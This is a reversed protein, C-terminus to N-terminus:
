EVSDASVEKTRESVEEGGASEEKFSGLSVRKPTSARMGRKKPTHESAVREDPTLIRVEDSDSKSKSDSNRKINAPSEHKVVRDKTPLISDSGYFGAAASIGWYRGRKAEDKAAEWLALEQDITTGIGSIGNMREDVAIKLAHWELPGDGALLSCHVADVIIDLAIGFTGRVKEMVEVANATCLTGPKIYAPGLKEEVLKLLACFSTRDAKIAVYYPDAGVSKIRAAVQGSEWLIPAIEPGSVLVACSGGVDALQKFLNVTERLSVVKLSQPLEGAEDFFVAPHGASIRSVLAQWLAAHTPPRRSQPVSRRAVAGQRIDPYEVKMDILPEELARLTRRYTEGEDFRARAPSPLRCYASGWLSVGDRQAAAILYKDMTKVLKTKGVNTPGYLVVVQGPKALEIIQLLRTFAQNFKRHMFLSGVLTEQLHSIAEAPLTKHSNLLAEIKM